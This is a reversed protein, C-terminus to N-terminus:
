CSPMGAGADYYYSNPNMLQTPPVQGAATGEGSADIGTLTATQTSYSVGNFLSPCTNKNNSGTTFDLNMCINGSQFLTVLMDTVPNTYQYPLAGPPAGYSKWAGTSGHLSQRRTARDRGHNKYCFGLRVQFPRTIVATAASVTTSAATAVTATGSDTVATITTSLTAGSAGAGRITVLDSVDAGTFSAKASTLTSRVPALRRMPYRAFGCLLTSSASTM